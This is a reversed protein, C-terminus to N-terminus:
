NDYINLINSVKELIEKDLDKLEITELTNTVYLRNALFVYKAHFIKDNYFFDLKLERDNKERCLEKIRNIIFGKEM